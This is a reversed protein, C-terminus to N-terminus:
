CFCFPASSIAAQMMAAMRNRPSGMWGEGFSLNTTESDICNAFNTQRSNCCLQDVWAAM